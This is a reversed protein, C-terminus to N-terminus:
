PRNRVLFQTGTVFLQDARNTSVIEDVARLVGDGWWGGEVAYDDGAIFGKAKVKPLWAELDDRIAEYSHDADLYIWDFYGDEFASAAELSTRRHIRVSSASSFREVVNEYLADM